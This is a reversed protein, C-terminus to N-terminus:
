QWSVDPIGIMVSVVIFYRFDHGWQLTVLFMITVAAEVNLSHSTTSHYFTGM